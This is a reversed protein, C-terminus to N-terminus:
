DRFVGHCNNCTAILNRASVQIAKPDAKRAAAALEEASARMDAVDAKWDKPDKDGMKKKPTYAEAVYALALAIKAAKELAPGEKAATATPLQKKSLRILKAEIGDPAGTRGGFGIGGLRPSKFAVMAALLSIKRAVLEDAGQKLATPDEEGVDDDGADATIKLLLNRAEAIAKREEDEESPPGAAALFGVVLVALGLLLLRRDIGM